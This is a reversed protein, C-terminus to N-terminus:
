KHQSEYILDDVYHKVSSLYHKPDKINNKIFHNLATHLQELNAEYMKQKSIPDLIGRWKSLRDLDGLVFDLSVDPSKKDVLFFPIDAYLYIESDVAIMAQEFYSKAFDELNSISEKKLKSDYWDNSGLCIKDKSLGTTMLITDGRENIRYTNFVKLGAEKAYNYKELARTADEKVHFEKVVFEGPIPLDGVYADVSSSVGFLGRGM